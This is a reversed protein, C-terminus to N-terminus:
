YGLTAEAASVNEKIWLVGQVARGNQRPITGGPVAPQKVGRLVAGQPGKPRPFQGREKGWGM